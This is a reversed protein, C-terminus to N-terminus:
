AHIRVVLQIKQRFQVSEVHGNDKLFILLSWRVPIPGLGKILDAAKAAFCWLHQILPPELEGHFLTVTADDKDFICCLDSLIGALSIYLPFQEPLLPSRLINYNM